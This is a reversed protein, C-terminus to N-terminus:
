TSSRSRPDPSRTRALEDSAARAGEGLFVASGVIEPVACTPWVSVAELPEQDPM